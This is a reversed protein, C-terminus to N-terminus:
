PLASSDEVVGVYLKFVKEGHAAKCPVKQITHCASVTHVLLHSQGYGPKQQHRLASQSLEDTNDVRM